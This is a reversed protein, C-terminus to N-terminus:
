KMYLMPFLLLPTNRIKQKGIITNKEKQSYSVYVISGVTSIAMGTKDQGSGEFAKGWVWSLRRMHPPDSVVIVRDLKKNLEDLENPTM